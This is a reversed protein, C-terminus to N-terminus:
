LVPPSSYAFGLLTHTGQAYFLGLSTGTIGEQTSVIAEKVLDVVIEEAGSTEVTEYQCPIGIGVFCV